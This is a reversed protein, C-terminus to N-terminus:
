TLPKDDQPIRTLSGQLGSSATAARVYGSLRIGFSTVEDDVRSM